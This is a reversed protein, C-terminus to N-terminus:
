GDNNKQNLTFQPTIRGHFPTKEVIFQHKRRYHPPLKVMIKEVTYSNKNKKVMFTKKEVM